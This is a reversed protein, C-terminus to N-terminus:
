KLVAIIIKFCMYVSLKFDAKKHGGVPRLVTPQFSVSSNEDKKM